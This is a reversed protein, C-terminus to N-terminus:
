RVEREPEPEEESKEDAIADRAGGSMAGCFIPLPALSTYARLRGRLILWDRMAVQM